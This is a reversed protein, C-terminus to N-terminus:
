GVPAHIDLFIFFPLLHHLVIEQFTHVPIQQFKKLMNGDDKHMDEDLLDALPHM